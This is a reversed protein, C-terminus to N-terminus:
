PHKKQKLPQGPDTAGIQQEIKEMERANAEGSIWAAYHNYFLDM